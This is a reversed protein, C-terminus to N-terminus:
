ILARAAQAADRAGTESDRARDAAIKLEDDLRAVSGAAEQLNRSISSTVQSQQTVAAAISSSIDNVRNIVDAVEAMASVAETSASQMSAIQEGIEGTAKATQSALTKVESAVVAFGKGAEGARAAEITANLALLNTQDAISSILEVVEGIKQAAGALGDVVERTAATHTAAESSVGRATEVQGSIERISADLEEAGAAVAQVNGTVGKSADAAEGAKASAEAISAAISQLRTNLDAQVAERRERGEVEETIDVAYKVVRVVRGEHDTMPSYIARIWLPAGSKRVRKYEGTFFEGSALRRWFAAYDESDAYDPECFIRHHRGVIEDLQYESAALFNANAQLIEGEPTFEIVAFARDSALLRAKLLAEEAVEETVDVAHKVIKVIEGARNAVPTYSARIWLDDGSKKVRRCQASKFEGKALSTWFAAYAETDRDEAPMFIRHHRGKIEELRYGTAALFNANATRITGDPDFEIVAHHRALSDVLRESATEHIRLM